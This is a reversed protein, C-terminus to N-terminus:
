LGQSQGECALGEVILRAAGCGTVLLRSWHTKSIERRCVAPMCEVALRQLVDSNGRLFTM